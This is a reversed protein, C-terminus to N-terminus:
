KHLRRQDKDPVIFFVTGNARLDKLARAFDTELRKEAGVDFQRLDLGVTAFGRRSLILLSIGRKRPIRSPIFSHHAFYHQM